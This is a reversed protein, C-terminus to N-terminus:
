RVDGGRLVGRAAARTPDPDAAGRVVPLDGGAGRRAAAPAPAPRGPRERDDARPGTDDPRPPAVRGLELALRHVRAPAPVIREPWEPSQPEARVMLGRRDRRRDAGGSE